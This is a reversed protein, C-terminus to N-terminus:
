LVKKEGVKLVDFDLNNLLADTPLPVGSPTRLKQSLPTATSSTSTAGASGAAPASPPINAAPVAVPQSVQHPRSVVPPPPPPPASPAAAAAATAAAAAAATRKIPTEEETRFLNGDRTELEGHGRCADEEDAFLLGKGRGEVAPDFESVDLNEQM